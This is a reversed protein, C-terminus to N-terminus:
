SELKLCRGIVQGTSIYEYNPMDFLVPSLKQYDIKGNENLISEEAYTNQIKLIFNDFEKTDYIDEVMCEMVLPANEVMPVNQESCKYPFVESKDVKKGSISGVYDATKLLARDVMNLSVHRNEKIGQNTYHGKACSIMIRDHGIIGVHAVLMWNPKQHIMTGVIVVPMPYLALVNGIKKKM